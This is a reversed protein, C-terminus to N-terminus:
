VVANKLVDTAAEKIEDDHAQIYAVRSHDDIVTVSRNKGGQQRGM